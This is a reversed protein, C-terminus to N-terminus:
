RGINSNRRAARKAKASLQDVCFNIRSTFDRLIGLIQQPSTDKPNEGFYTCLEAFDREADVMAESSKSHALTLEESMRAITKTREEHDFGEEEIPGDKNNSMLLERALDMGEKLHAVDSSLQKLSVNRAETVSPMDHVLDLAEPVVQFMRAIFYQELTDGSNAKVTALKNITSLRFGGDVSETLGKQNVSTMLQMIKLFIFKLRASARVEQCARILEETGKQSRQRIEPCMMCCNMVVLTKKLSPVRGLYYVYQEPRSMGAIIDRREKKTESSANQVELLKVHDDVSRIEAKEPIYQSIATSATNGLKEYEFNYVTAAINACSQRGFRTLMISLNHDRRPDLASIDSTQTNFKKSSTKSRDPSTGGNAGLHKSVRRMVSVSKRKKERVFEDELDCFIVKMSVDIEDAESNEFITGATDSLSMHDIQVKIGENKKRESEQAKKAAFAGVTIKGSGSTFSVIDKEESKNKKSATEEPQELRMEKRQKWTKEAKPPATIAEVTLVAPVPPWSLPLPPPPADGEDGESATMVTQAGSVASGRRPSSAAATSAPARSADHLFKTLTCVVVIEKKEDLALNLNDAEQMIPLVTEHVGSIGLKKYQNCVLSLKNVQLASLAMKAALQEKKGVQPEKKEDLEAVDILEDKEKKFTPSSVSSPEKAPPSTTPPTLPEARPPAPLESKAATVPALPAPPASKELYWKKVFTHLSKSSIAENAVSTTDLKHREVGPKLGALFDAHLRGVEVYDRVPLVKSAPPGRGLSSGIQQVKTSPSSLIGGNRHHRSAAILAERLHSITIALESEAFLHQIYKAATFELSSSNSEGWKLEELRFLVEEAALFHDPGSARRAAEMLALTDKTAKNLAGYCYHRCMYSRYVHSFAKDTSAQVTSLYYECDGVQECLPGFVHHYIGRAILLEKRSSENNGIKRFLMGLRYHCEGTRLHMLDYLNMAVLLARGSLEIAESIRGDSEVLQSLESYIDVLLAHRDGFIATLYKMSDINLLDRGSSKSEGLIIKFLSSFTENVDMGHHAEKKWPNMAEKAARTAAPLRYGRKKTDDINIVAALEEIKQKLGM